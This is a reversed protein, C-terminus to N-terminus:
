LLSLSGGLARNRNLTNSLVGVLKTGEIEFVYTGGGQNSSSKSVSSGSYSRSGNGSVGGSASSGGGIGGGISKSKSAVFAGLAILAVGAAIAIYPNLSEFAKKIALLGVGVGIALEGLQTLLAGVGGLLAGGLADALNAGTALATGIAEGIGAFTGTINYQIIGAAEENFRELTVKMAALGTRLDKEGQTLLPIMPLPEFGAALVTNIETKATQINSITEALGRKEIETKEGQLRIREQLEEIYLRSRAARLKTEIDVVNKASEKVVEEYGETGKKWEERLQKNHKDVLLRAESLQAELIQIEAKRFKLSEAYQDSLGKGLLKAELSAAKAALDLETNLEKRLESQRKITENLQDMALEQANIEKTSAFLKDGYTVLLSTVASVAFLIGAPGALSGLMASLAAKTGGASKSLYGFQSTLQTINNAVGRIGYPADQIVQSFSTLAPVANASTSKALKNQALAGKEAEASFQKVSNGAKQLGSEVGDVNAKININLQNDAM